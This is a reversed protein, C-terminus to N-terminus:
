ERKLCSKFNKAACGRPPLERIGILVRNLISWPISVVVIGVLVFIVVAVIALISFYLVTCDVFIVIFVVCLM